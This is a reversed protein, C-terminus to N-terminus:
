PHIRENEIYLTNIHLPKTAAPRPNNVIPSGGYVALLEVALLLMAFVALAAITGALWRQGNTM